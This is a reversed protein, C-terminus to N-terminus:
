EWRIGGPDNTHKGFFTCHRATPEGGKYHICWRQPSAIHCQEFVAESPHEVVVADSSSSRLSTRVLRPTAGVCRLAYDAATVSSALIEPTSAAGEFRLARHQSEMDCFEVAVAAEELVLCTYKTKITSHRIVGGANGRSLIGSKARIQCHSLLPTCPEREGRVEKVTLATGAATVECMELRPSSQLECLIGGSMESALRSLTVVPDSQNTCYLAYGKATVECLSIRPSSLRCHIGNGKATIDCRKILPRSGIVGCFVGHGDAAITCDRVTPSGSIYVGHADQGTAKISFGSITAGEVNNCNVATQGSTEISCLDAGSGFIDVYPKMRVQERYVGPLVRILYPRQAAADTISNLADRLTPFDGGEEAVTITGAYARAGPLQMPLGLASSVGEVPERVARRQPAVVPPGAVPARTSAAATGAVDGTGVGLTGCCLVFATQWVSWRKPIM